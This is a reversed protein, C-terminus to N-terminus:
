RMEPRRVDDVNSASTSRELHEEEYKVGDVDDDVDMEAVVVFGADRRTRPSAL